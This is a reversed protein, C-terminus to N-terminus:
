KLTSIYEMIDRLERKSLLEGLGPPMGSPGVDRSKIEAKKLTEPEAGAVPLQLIVSDATEGKLLGAKIDGSTMTCIVSEFGHAIKAGPDVIAELLYRRDKQAAVKTLDPGADGGSENIKHCRFCQAVAHEKFLKEGNEADGGVLAFSFRGLKDAAAEQAVWADLKQKV